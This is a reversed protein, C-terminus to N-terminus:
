ILGKRYSIYQLYGYNLRAGTLMLLFPHWYWGLTGLLIGPLVVGVITGMTADSIQGVKRVIPNLEGKPNERMVKETCFADWLVAASYAIEAAIIGFM